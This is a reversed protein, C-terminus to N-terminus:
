IYNRYSKRHNGKIIGKFIIVDNLPIVSPERIQNINVSYNNLLLKDYKKIELKTNFDKNNLTLKKNYARGKFNESKKDIFYYKEKGNSFSNSRKEKRSNEPLKFLSNIDEEDEDKFNFINKENNKSSEIKDPPSYSNILRNIKEKIENNIIIKELKQCIFEKLHIIIENKYIKHFYEYIIKYTQTRKGKKFKSLHALNFKSFNFLIYITEELLNLINKEKQNEEFFKFIINIILEDITKNNSLYLILILQLKELIHFINIINKEKKIINDNIINILYIKTEPNM